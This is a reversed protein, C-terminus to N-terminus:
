QSQVSLGEYSFEKEMRFDYDMTERISDYSAYFVTEDKLVWEKKTINYPRIRGAHEFVGEFLRRHIAMWEAPSFQFTKEGLLEAIRVAVKDAEETNRGYEDSNDASKQEEYYRNIRTRVTDISIQGEIHAKATELLYDSTELGDVDQLGIATNWAYSKEMRTPEGRRIYESLELQWKKNGAM